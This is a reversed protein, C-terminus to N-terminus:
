HNIQQLLAMFFGATAPKKHTHGHCVINMTQTEM